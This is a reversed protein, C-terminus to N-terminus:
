LKRTNLRPHQRDMIPSLVSRKGTRLQRELVNIGWRKDTRLALLVEGHINMTGLALKFILPM